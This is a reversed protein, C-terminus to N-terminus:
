QHFESHFRNPIIKTATLASSAAAEKDERSAWNTQGVVFGFQAVRAQAKRQEIDAWRVRKQGQRMPKKDENLELWDEISDHQSMRSKMKDGTGDLRALKEEKDLIEWKSARLFSQGETDEEEDNQSLDSKEESKDDPEKVVTEDAAESMEVHEIADDQLLSRIDLTNMHGPTEEWTKALKSVEEETRKHTNRSAAFVPDCEVTCVYVEYGHQKAYSWFEKFHCSKNNVADIILFKFLGADINKKFSKLLCNRYSEEMEAEYDYEGDVEFYDDLCMTRPQERGFEVEKDKILKAVHSKGAGPVGRLIVVIKPPRTVDADRSLISDVMVSRGSMKVGLDRAPSSFPGGRGRHHGNNGINGSKIGHSYDFTQPRFDPENNFNSSQKQSYDKVESPNWFNEFNDQLPPRQFQGGRGRFSGFGRPNFGRPPGGLLGGRGFPQNKNMNPNNQNLFPRGQFSNMRPQFVGPRPQFNSNTPRRRMDNINLDDADDNSGWRSKKSPFESEENWRSEQQSQEALDDNADGWRSKKNKIEPEPDAWRSRKVNNKEENKDEDSDESYDNDELLKMVCENAAALSSFADSKDDKDAEVLKKPSTFPNHVDVTGSESHWKEVMVKSNILKKRKDLLQSKMAEMQASYSQTYEDDPNDKNEDKWKEYTAEWNKFMKDFKSLAVDNKDSKRENNESKLKQFHRSKKCKRCEERRAFNIERCAEDGCKWDGPRINSFTSSKNNFREQYSRGFNGRWDNYQNQNQDDYEDYENNDNNQANDDNELDMDGYGQDYDDDNYGNDYEQNCYNDDYETDDQYPNNQFM